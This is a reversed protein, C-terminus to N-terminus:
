HAHTQGANNMLAEVAIGSNIQRINLTSNQINFTRFEDSARASGTAASESLEFNLMLMRLAAEGTGSKERTEFAYRNV